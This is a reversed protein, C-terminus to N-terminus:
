CIEGNCWWKINPGAQRDATSVVDKTEFKTLRTPTPVYNTCGQGYGWGGSPVAHFKCADKNAQYSTHLPTMAFLDFLTQGGGGNKGFGYIEGNDCIVITAYSSGIVDIPKDCLGEVKKPIHTKAGIWGNYSCAECPVNENYDFNGVSDGNADKQYWYTSTPYAGTTDGWDRNAGLQGDTDMGWCMVEDDETIVCRHRSMPATSMLKKVKIPNGTMTGYQWTSAQHHAPSTHQPAYPNHQANWDEQNGSDTVTLLPVSQSRQSRPDQASNYVEGWCVVSDDAKTACCSEMNCHLDKVGTADYDSKVYKPCYDNYHCGGRQGNDSTYRTGSSSTSMIEVPAPKGTASSQGYTVCLHSPCDTRWVPPQADNAYNSGAYSSGDIDIRGLQGSGNRGWCYIKTDTGLTCTMHWGCTL